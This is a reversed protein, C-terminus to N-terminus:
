RNQMEEAMEKTVFFGVKMCEGPSVDFNGSAYYSGDDLYINYVFNAANANSNGSWVIGTYLNSGNTAQYCPVDAMSLYYYQYTITGIQNDFNDYFYVYPVGSLLMADSASKYLFYSVTASYDCINSTETTANANYNDATADMCGTIIVPDDDDDDKSCSSFVLPM